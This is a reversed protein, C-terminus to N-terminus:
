VKKWFVKKYLGEFTIGVGSKFVKDLEELMAKAGGPTVMFSEDDLLVIEPVKGELERAESVCVTLRHHIDIVSTTNLLMLINKNSQVSLNFIDLFVKMGKNFSVMQIEKFNQKILYDCRVKTDEEGLPEVLVSTDKLFLISEMRPFLSYVKVMKNKEKRITDIRKSWEDNIIAKKVIEIHKERDEKMLSLRIFSDKNYYKDVNPCGWYFFVTEGVVGDTFKETVYNDYSHNEANFHYKYPLIGDDKSAKPLEGKYNKFKLSACKGYIHVEFGLTNNAMALIAM